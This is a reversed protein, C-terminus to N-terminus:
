LVPHNKFSTREFPKPLANSQDLTPRLCAGSGYSVYNPPTLFPLIWTKHLAPYWQQAEFPVFNPPGLSANIPLLVMENKQSSM